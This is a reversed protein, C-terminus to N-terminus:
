VRTWYIFLGDTVLVGSSVNGLPSTTQQVPLPGNAPMLRRETWLGVTHTTVSGVSGSVNSADNSPSDHAVTRSLIGKKIPFYKKLNRVELLPETQSM